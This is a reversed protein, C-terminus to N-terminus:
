RLRWAIRQHVEYWLERLRGSRIPGELTEYRAGSAARRANREFVARDKPHM